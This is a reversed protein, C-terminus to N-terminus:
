PIFIKLFFTLRKYKIVCLTYEAYDIACTYTLKNEAKNRWNCTM